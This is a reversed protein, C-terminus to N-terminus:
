PWQPGPLFPFSEGHPGALGRKWSNSLCTSHSLAAPFEMPAGEEALVSRLADGAGARVQWPNVEWRSGKWESGGTGVAGEGMQCGANWFEQPNYNSSDTRLGGPYVRSLQWTNHQVFENGTFHTHPHPALPHSPHEEERTGLVRGVWKVRRELM